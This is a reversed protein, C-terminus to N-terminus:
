NHYDLAYSEPVTTQHLDLEQRHFFCFFIQSGREFSFMEKAPPFSLSLLVIKTKVICLYESVETLAVLAFSLLSLINLTRTM